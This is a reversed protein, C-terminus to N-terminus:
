GYNYKVDPEFPLNQKRRCLACNEVKCHEIDHECVLCGEPRKANPCNEDKHFIVDWHAQSVKMSTQTSIIFGMQYKTPNDTKTM